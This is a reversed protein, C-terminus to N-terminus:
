LNAKLIKAREIDKTQTTKDGGCLMIIVDQDKNTYYLRNGKGLRIRLESVGQGVSKADGFNGTAVRTLRQLIAKRVRHDKLTSVWDTFETTTVVNYFTQM